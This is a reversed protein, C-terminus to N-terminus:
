DPVTASNPDLGITTGLAFMDSLLKKAALVADEAGERSEAQKKKKHAAAAMADFRDQTMDDRSHGMEALLSASDNNIEVFGGSIAFQTEAGNADIVTVIGPRLTVIELAHGPMVVMDGDTAPLRMERVQVSTLNREPSVLDFQMVDAM